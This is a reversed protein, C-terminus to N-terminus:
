NNHTAKKFFIDYLFYWSGWDLSQNQTIEDATNFLSLLTQFDLQNGCAVQM